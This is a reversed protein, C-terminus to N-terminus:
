QSKDPWKRLDELAKAVESNLTKVFKICEAREDEAGNKRAVEELKRGFELVDLDDAYLGDPSKNDCEMFIAKIQMNTLMTKM